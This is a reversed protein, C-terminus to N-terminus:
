LQMVVMLSRQFQHRQSASSLSLPLVRLKVEETLPLALSWSRLGVFAATACNRGPVWVQTVACKFYCEMGCMQNSALSPVAQLSFCTHAGM